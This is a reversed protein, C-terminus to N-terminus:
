KRTDNLKQGHQINNNKNSHFYILMDDDDKIINRIFQYIASIIYVRYFIKNVDIHCSQCCTAVYNFQIYDIYNPDLPLKESTENM